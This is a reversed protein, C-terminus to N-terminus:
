FGLVDKHQRHLRRKKLEEDSITRADLESACVGDRHLPGDLLYGCNPCRPPSDGGDLLASGALALLYVGGIGLMIWEILATSM